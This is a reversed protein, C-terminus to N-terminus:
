LQKQLSAKRAKLDQNIGSQAAYSGPHLKNGAAKIDVARRELRNLMAFQENAMTKSGKKINGEIDNMLRHMSVEYKVSEKVIKASTVFHDNLVKRNSAGYVKGIVRENKKIQYSLDDYKAATTNNLDQPSIMSSNLQRRSSDLNLGTKVGDIMHATRNVYTKFETSSSKSKLRNYEGLTTSELRTISASGSYKKQIDSWLDKASQTYNEASAGLVASYADVRKTGLYKPNWYSNSLSSITVGQSTSAHMFQGNGVYVGVHSASSSTTAFFVLDGPQKASVKTVIGSSYMSSVTRPLSIGAKNFIYGIFGSCDFGTSPSTGGYKYPVGIYKKGIDVVSVSEAHATHTIANPLYSGFLLSSALGLVIAPKKMKKM